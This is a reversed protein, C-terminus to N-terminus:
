VPYSVRTGSWSAIARRDPTRRYVGLSRRLFQRYLIEAHNDVYDRCVFRLAFPFADRLRSLPRREILDLANEQGAQVM